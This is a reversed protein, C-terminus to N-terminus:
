PSRHKTSYLNIITHVVFPLHEGCLRRQVYQELLVGDKKTSGIKEKESTVTIRRAENENEFM